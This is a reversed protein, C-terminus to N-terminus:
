KGIKGTRRRQSCVTLRATAGIFPDFLPVLRPEKGSYYSLQGLTVSTLSGVVSTNVENMFSLFDNQLNTVFSEGFQYTNIFSPTGLGGLYFRGHGGRYRRAVPLSVLAAANAPAVGGGVTGTTTDTAIFQAAVDSSLDTYIEELVYASDSCEHNYIRDLQGIINNHLDELDSDSAPGGTYQMHMVNEMVPGNDCGYRVQLKIVKDAAPLPPM